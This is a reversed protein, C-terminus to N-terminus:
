ICCCIKYGSWCGNGYDSMRSNATICFTASPDCDGSCSVGCSPATGIVEGYAGGKAECISQCSIGKLNADDKVDFNNLNKEKSQLLQSGNTVALLSLISFILLLKLMAIFLNLLLNGM